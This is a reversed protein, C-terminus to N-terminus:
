HAHHLVQALCPAKCFFHINLSSRICVVFCVVGLQIYLTRIRSDNLKHEVEHSMPACRIHPLLSYSAHMGLTRHFFLRHPSQSPGDCATAVLLASFQQYRSHRLPALVCSPQCFQKWTHWVVWLSRLRVFIVIVNGLCLRLARVPSLYKSGILLVSEVCNLVIGISSVVKLALFGISSLWASFSFIYESIINLYKSM